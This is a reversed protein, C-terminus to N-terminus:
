PPVPIAAAVRGMEGTFGIISLLEKYPAFPGLGNIM